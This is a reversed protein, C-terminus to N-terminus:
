SSRIFTPSSSTPIGWPALHVASREVHDGYLGAILFQFLFGISSCCRRRQLPDKWGGVDDGAVISSRSARDSCRDGHYLACFLHKRKREIGLRQVNHHHGCPEHRHICHLGNGGGMVPYGFIAKRSSFLSSRPLLPSRPFLWCMFSGSPRFDLLFADLDAASGGAQTDFFHGGLYRDVLLM